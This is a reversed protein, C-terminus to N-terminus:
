DATQTYTGAHAADTGGIRLAATGDAQKDYVFTYAGDTTQATNGQIRAIGDGEDSFYFEFSTSDAQMLEVSIAGNVFVGNWDCQADTAADYLPFDSYESLMGEGAYNYRDGSEQDIAVTGIQNGDADSVTFLAYGAGQRIQNSEMTGAAEAQYGEPLRETVLAKAEDETLTIPAPDQPTPEPTTPQQTQTPPTVEAPKGCGSLGISMGFLLLAASLGALLKKTNQKM